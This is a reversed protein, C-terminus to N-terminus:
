LSKFNRKLKYCRESKVSKDLAATRKKIKEIIFYFLIVIIKSQFM